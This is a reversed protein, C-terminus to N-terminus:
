WCGEPTRNGASDISLTPCKDSAQSGVATATITFRPAPDNAAVLALTYKSALAPPLSMGLTALSEAYRRRDVLFQAQRTAATTVIAQLEARASRRMEAAYSNYAVIALIGVIAMVILLEIATFGANRPSAKPLASRSTAM